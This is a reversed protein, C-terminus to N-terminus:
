KKPALRHQKDAPMAPHPVHKKAKRHGPARVVQHSKSPPGSPTTDGFAVKPHVPVPAKPTAM